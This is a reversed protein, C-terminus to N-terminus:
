IKINELLSTEKWRDWAEMLKEEVVESVYDIGRHFKPNSLHQCVEIGDRMEVPDMIDLKNRLIGTTYVDELPFGPSMESVLFVQYALEANMIFASGECYSPYLTANYTIVRGVSDVLGKQYKGWGIKVKSHTYMKTICTPQLPHNRKHKANKDSIHKLIPQWQVYVDSDVHMIYEAVPCFHHAWRFQGITKATLNWYTEAFNEVIIDDFSESERKVEDMVQKETKHVGYVDVESDPIKGPELESNAVYFALKVNLGGMFLLKQRTAELITGAWTNRLIQRRNFEWSAGTVLILLDM